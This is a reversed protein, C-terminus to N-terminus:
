DEGYKGYKKYVVFDFKENVIIAVRYVSDYAKRYLKAYWSKGMRELVIAVLREKEEAFEEAVDGASEQDALEQGARLEGPGEGVEFILLTGDPARYIGDLGENGLVGGPASEAGGLHMAALLLRGRQGPKPAQGPWLELVAEFSRRFGDADFDALRAMMDVCLKRLRELDGMPELGLLLPLLASKVEFNPFDFYENVDGPESLRGL